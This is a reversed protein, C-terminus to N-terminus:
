ILCFINLHDYFHVYIILFDNLPLRLFVSYTHSFYIWLINFILRFLCWRFPYADSDFPSCLLFSVIRKTIMFRRSRKKSQTPYMFCDKPGKGIGKIWCDFKLKTGLLKKKEERAWSSVYILSKENGKWSCAPKFPVGSAMSAACHLLNDLLDGGGNASAATPFPKWGHFFLGCVEDPGWDGVSM